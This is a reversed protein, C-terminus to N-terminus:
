ASTPIEALLELKTITATSYTGPTCSNTFLHIKYIGTYSSLDIYEDLHFNTFSRCNVGNPGYNTYFTAVKTNSNDMLYGLFGGYFDGVVHLYHYVSLDYLENTIPGYGCGMGDATSTCTFSLPNYSISGGTSYGSNSLPTVNSSTINTLDVRMINEKWKAYLNIDSNVIYSSTIETDFTDELYWGDFTYDEKNPNPLDGIATGPTVLVSSSSITGGNTNLTVVAKNSKEGTIVLKGFFANGQISNPAESSIWLKISIKTSAGGLITESYIIGDSTLNFPESYEGDNISYAYRIYQYPLQTCNITEETDVFCLEQKETDNLLKLTYDVPNGTANTITFIFPDHKLGDADYEPYVNTLNLANDTTNDVSVVLGKISIINVVDGKKAYQFFGFSRGVLFVILMMLVLVSTILLALKLKSHKKVMSIVM